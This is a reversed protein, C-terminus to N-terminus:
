SNSQNNLLKIGKKMAIPVILAITFDNVWFRLLEKAKCSDKYMMTAGECSELLEKNRQELKEIQAEYEDRIKKTKVLYDHSHQKLGADFAKAIIGKMGENLDKYEKDVYEKGTM